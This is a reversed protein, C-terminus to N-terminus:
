IHSKASSIARRVKKLDYSFNMRRFFEHM